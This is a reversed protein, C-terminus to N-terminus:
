SLFFSVPVCAGRAFAASFAGSGRLPLLAGHDRFCSKIAMTSLHTHAILKNLRIYDDTFNSNTGYWSTQWIETVDGPVSFDATIWYLTTPREYNHLYSDASCTMLRTTLSSSPCLSGEQRDDRLDPLILATSSTM